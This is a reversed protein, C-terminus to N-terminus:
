LACALRDPKILLKPHSLNKFSFLRIRVKRYYVYFLNASDTYLSQIFQGQEMQPQGFYSKHVEM